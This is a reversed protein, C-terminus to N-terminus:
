EEENSEEEEDDIKLLDVYIKSGDKGTEITDKYQLGKAMARAKGIKTIGTSKSTMGPGLVKLVNHIDELIHQLDEAFVFDRAIKPFLKEYMEELQKKSQSGQDPNSLM